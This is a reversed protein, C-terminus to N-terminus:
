EAVVVPVGHNRMILRLQEQLYSNFLDPRTITTSYFGPVPMHGYAQRSDAHSYSSITVGIEPYFARYRRTPDAGQAIAAFSDRLFRTNREYISRLAAVAEVADTFSRRQAPEPSVVSEIPHPYITKEMAWYLPGEHGHPSAVGKGADIWCDHVAC